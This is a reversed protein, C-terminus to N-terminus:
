QMMLLLQIMTFNGPILLATAPKWHEKLLQWHLAWTPLRLNVTSYSNLIIRTGNVIILDPNMKQILTITEASNVSNVHVLKDDPIEGADLNNENLIELVRKKSLFALPKAILLQFAIQGAVKVIGLKKIRRKVFIKTSEKEEIIALAIGYRQNIDNFVINTSVGKGAVLIIKKHDM